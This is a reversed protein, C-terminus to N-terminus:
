KLARILDASIIREFQKNLTASPGMFQRRPLRMRRKHRRVKIQGADEDVVRKTRTRERGKRTTYKEKVKKYRSRTHADVDVLANVGYNHAYAYPVDTEIIATTPTVQAKRISRRLRGTKTLVARASRRRGREKRKAWPHTYNDVWDQSRFRQKYFNVAHTALKPMLGDVAKNVRKITESIEDLENM